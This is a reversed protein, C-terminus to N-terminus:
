THLATQNATQIQARDILRNTPREVGGCGWLCVPKGALLAMYSTAAGILGTILGYWFSSDVTRKAVATTSRAHTPTNYKYTLRNIPGTSRGPRDGWGDM